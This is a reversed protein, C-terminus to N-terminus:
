GKRVMRRPLYMLTYLIGHEKVCQVGGQLFTKKRVPTMFDKLKPCEEVILNILIDEYFPTKRAYNWFYSAMDCNRRNWPKQYGAYHVILPQKRAEMWEFYLAAPAKKLLNERSRGEEKWNMVVNWRQPIYYVRGHCVHNLVDQDHCKWENGCAIHLLEDVSISKRLANLNLVLVGAQFYEYPDKLGLQHIVYEKMKPNSKIQGAIDIDRAAAILHDGIDMDYLESVDCEAVMDSDLYLVKDYEPMLDQVILRYYTEVSLHQNVFLRLAHFYGEVNAFRVSCHPYRTAQKQMSQQNEPSIDQHLVIIDYRRSPNAHNLISELMTSLYPVFRDNAALVIPVYKADIQRIQTPLNTQKILIKQLELRKISPDGKLYTYYIGFLREAIFGIVRLEEQNYYRTDLKQELTALIDFLWACYRTYLVKNMIFMNCEYAMDDQMYAEVASKFEPYKEVVIKLALTLDEIHQADSVAYETYNNKFENRSSQKRHANIDRAKVTIVDYNPVLAQIHADDIHYKQLADETLRDLVINGWGDEQFRRSIDFSFYRRYHFFGYYDANLNKWAWYQATLECYMKNKSSINEGQNDQFVGEFHKDRLDAGVEIPLMIESDPVTSLKHCSILIKINKM